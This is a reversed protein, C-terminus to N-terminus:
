GLGDGKAQFACRLDTLYLTRPKVHLRFHRAFRDSVTADCGKRGHARAVRVRRRRSWKGPSWELSVVKLNQYCAPAIKATHM